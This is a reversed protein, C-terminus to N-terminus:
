SSGGAPPRRAAAACGSCTGAPRAPRGAPGVSRWGAPCGTPAGGLAVC